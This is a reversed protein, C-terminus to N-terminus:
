NFSIYVKAFIGFLRLHGGTRCPVFYVHRPWWAASIPHLTCEVLFLFVQEKMHPLVARTIYVIGLYNTKQYNQSFITM